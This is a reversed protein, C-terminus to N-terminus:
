LTKRHDPRCRPRLQSWRRTFRLEGFPPAPLAWASSGERKYLVWRILFSTKGMNVAAVDDEARQLKAEDVCQHSHRQKQAEADQIDGIHSGVAGEGQAARHEAVRRRPRAGPAPIRNRAMAPRHPKAAEDCGSQLGAQAHRGDERPMMVLVPSYVTFRATIPKEELTGCASFASWRRGHACSARQRHTGRVLEHQGRGDGHHHASSNIRNRPVRIPREMRAVPSLGSMTRAEEMLVANVMVIPRHMELAM